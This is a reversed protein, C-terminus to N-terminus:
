ILDKFKMNLFERNTKLEFLDKYILDKTTSLKYAMIIFLCLSVIGLKSSTTRNALSHSKPLEEHSNLIVTPCFSYGERDFFQSRYFQAEKKLYLNIGMLLFPNFKIKNCEYASINIMSNDYINDISISSKVAESLNLFASGSNFSNIQVEGLVSNISTRNKCNLSGIRLVTNNINMDVEDCYLNSITIEKGDSKISLYRAKLTSIDLGSNEMDIDVHKMYGSKVITIKSNVLKLTLIEEGDIDLEIDSNNIILTNKKNKFPNIILKEDHQALPNNLDYEITDDIVSANFIESNAPSHQGSIHIKKFINDNIYYRAGSIHKTTAANPDVVVRTSFNFKNFNKFLKYM